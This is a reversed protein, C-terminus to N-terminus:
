DLRLTRLGVNLKVFGVKRASWSAGLIMIIASPNWTLELLIAVFLTATLDNSIHIRLGKRQQSTNLRNDLM